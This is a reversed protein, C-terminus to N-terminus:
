LLALEDLKADSVRDIIAMMDAFIDAPSPYGMANTHLYNIRLDYARSYLKDHRENGDDLSFLLKALINHSITSYEVLKKAVKHELITRRQTKNTGSM